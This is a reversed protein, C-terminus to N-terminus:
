ELSSSLSPLRGPFHLCKQPQCTPTSFPPSTGPVSNGELAVRDTFSVDQPQLSSACHNLASAVRGLVPTQDGPNVHQSVVMELELEWLDSARKQGLAM